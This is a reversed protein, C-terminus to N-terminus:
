IMTKQNLDQGLLANALEVIGWTADKPHTAHNPSPIRESRNYTRMRLYTNKNSSDCKQLTFGAWVTTEEGSNILVFLDDNKASNGALLEEGM